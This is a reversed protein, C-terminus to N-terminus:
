LVRTYLNPSSEDSEVCRGTAPERSCPLSRGPEMSTPLKNVLQAAILKQLSVNGLYNFPLLYLKGQACVGCWSSINPLPPISGRM